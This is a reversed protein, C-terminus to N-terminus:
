LSPYSHSFWSFPGAVIDDLLSTRGGCLLWWWFLCKAAHTASCCHCQWTVRKRLGGANEPRLWIAALKVIVLGMLSLSSFVLLANLKPSLDNNVSTCFILPPRGPDLLCGGTWLDFTLLGCPPWPSGQTVGSGQVPTGSSWAIGGLWSCGKGLWTQISFLTVNVHYILGVLWHTFHPWIHHFTITVVPLYIYYM